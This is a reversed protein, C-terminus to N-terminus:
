NLTVWLQARDWWAPWQELSWVADDGECNRLSEGQNWDLAACLAESQEFLLPWALKLGGLLRRKRTTAWSRPLFAAPSLASLRVSSVPAVKACLKLWKMLFVILSVMCARVKSFGPQSESQGEWTVWKGPCLNFSSTTTKKQLFQEVSGEAKWKLRPEATLFRWQGSHNKESLLWWGQLWM